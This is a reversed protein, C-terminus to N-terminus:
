SVTFTKELIIIAFHVIIFSRPCMHNGDVFRVGKVEWLGIAHNLGYVVKVYDAVVANVKWLFHELIQIMM